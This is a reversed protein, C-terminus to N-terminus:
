KSRVFEEAEALQRGGREGGGHAHEGNKGRRYIGGQLEGTGAQM